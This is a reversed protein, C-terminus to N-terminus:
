ISNIDLLSGSSKSPSLFVKEKSCIIDRSTTAVKYENQSEARRNRYLNLNNTIKNEPLM